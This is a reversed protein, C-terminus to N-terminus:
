GPSIKPTMQDTPPHTRYNVSFKHNTKGGPACKEINIENRELEKGDFLELM